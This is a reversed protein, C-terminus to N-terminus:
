LLARPASLSNERSACEKKVEQRNMYRAPRIWKRRLQRWAEPYVRTEDPQYLQCFPMFGIELVRNLRYEADALSENSYGILTYCRMKDIPYGQLIKAARELAPLDSKFDCAFWLENIKISDFQERHWDKLYHKDLGGTFFAGRKQQRLMDFVARIHGDSCALLNNDQVIWGPKIELERLMGERKPVVCFGCRKPCGRSTITCGEKMFRGPIFEAGPDDYAPGGVQVDDYYHAWAGAIREAERKHWTFTVSVRVPTSRDGPRFLPPEGVFALNDTPTWKNRHPFVRIM